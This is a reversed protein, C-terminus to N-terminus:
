ARSYQRDQEHRLRSIRCLRLRGRLLDDKDRVVSARDRALLRCVHNPLDAVIDNHRRLLQEAAPIVPSMRVLEPCPDACIHCLRTYLSRHDGGIGHDVAIKDARALVAIRAILHEGAGDPEALQLTRLRLGGHVDKAGDHPRRARTLGRPM